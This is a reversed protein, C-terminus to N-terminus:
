RPDDCNGSSIHSACQGEGLPRQPGLEPINAIVGDESIELENTGCERSGSLRYTRKFRIRFALNCAKITLVDGVAIHDIDDYHVATVGVLLNYRYRSDGYREAVRLIQGEIVISLTNRKM